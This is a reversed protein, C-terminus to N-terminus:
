NVYRFDLQWKLREEKTDPLFVDLAALEDQCAAMTKANVPVGGLKFTKRTNKRGEIQEDALYFVYEIM